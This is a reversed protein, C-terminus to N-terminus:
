RRLSDLFVKVADCLEERAEEQVFHGAKPLRLVSAGPLAEIWTDLEKERFAIDKMGWAILAPKGSLSERREWLSRLWPTSAIIERPFVASGTRERPSGLPGLYQAHIRPTLLRRDGYAGPMVVRAFFNFRRILFRGLPGGVFGSFARYYWDDDVPWMWTNLVVLGSVKEPHEICYSLGTPGGWDQVVVTIDDLGLADVLAALNRAHERPRYSWDGPKDSLGFGIHDPAVCRHTGSFRRILHRYLFSWTPNGHVMLIPRGTGEDVYHMRGADVEFFHSAFPYEARDLWSPTSLKEEQRTRTM